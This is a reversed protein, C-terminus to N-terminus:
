LRAERIEVLLEGFRARRRAGLLPALKWMFEEARPGNAKWQWLRKRNLAADKESQGKLWVAGIGAVEHFRKVVDEDTMVLNMEFRLRHGDKVPYKVRAM